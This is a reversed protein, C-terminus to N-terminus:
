SMRLYSKGKVVKAGPIPSEKSDTLISKKDVTTITQTKKYKKPIISEDWVDVGDRGAVVSLTVLPLKLQKKGISELCVKIYEKLNKEANEFMTSRAKLREIESNLMVKTNKFNIVTVAINEAKEELSLEIKTLAQETEETLEGGAEIIQNEIDRLEETIEYLKTM